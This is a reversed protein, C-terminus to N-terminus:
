DLLKLENLMNSMMVMTGKSAKYSITLMKLVEIAKTKNSKGKGFLIDEAESIVAEIPRDIPVYNSLFDIFEAIEEDKSKKKKPIYYDLILDFNYKIMLESKDITDLYDIVQSEVSQRPLMYGLFEESPIEKFNHEIPITRRIVKGNSLGKFVIKTKM